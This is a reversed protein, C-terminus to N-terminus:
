RMWFTLREFWGKEKELREIMPEGSVRSALSFFAKSAQSNPRHHVVPKKHNISKPVSSDEPVIALIPVGLMSRIESMKMEHSKGRYRNVVVGMVKTGHEDAMKITKLADTVAPLDPNTVVILEDALRMSTQAEKGLGAASDVLIIDASGLLSWLASEMKELNVGKMADVSLSAPIIKLGSPHEYIASQIPIKRKLVDHLTIPYFPIGLHLSLNPTTVNGDILIVNKGRSVLAAGLNSVTTTKGVGGKGSIVSIIKAVSDFFLESVFFLFNIFRGPRSKSGRGESRKM